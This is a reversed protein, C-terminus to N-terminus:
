EAALAAAPRITEFGEDSAQAVADQLGEAASKLRRSEARIDSLRDSLGSIEIAIETMTGAVDQSASQQASVVEAIARSLPDIESMTRRTAEIAASTKEAVERIRSIEAGISDTAEATQRALDKVEGAVVAFGRGAEGARAAEITANLALLNTRAAIDNILHVVEGIREGAETLAATVGSTTEAEANAQSVLTQTEAVRDAIEGLKAAFGGAADAAGRVGIEMDAATGALASVQRENAAAAEGAEDIPGAMKETVVSLARLAGAAHAASDDGRRKEETVDLLTLVYGITADEDDHETKVHLVFRRAGLALAAGNRAQADSLHADFGDIAARLEVGAWPYLADPKEADAPASLLGDRLLDGFGRSHARLRGEADTLAVPAPLDRFAALLADRSPLADAEVSILRGRYRVAAAPATEPRQAVPRPANLQARRMRISELFVANM